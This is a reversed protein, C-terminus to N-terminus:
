RAHISNSDRYHKQGIEDHLERAVSKRIQEEVSVLQRALDQKERLEKALRTNM